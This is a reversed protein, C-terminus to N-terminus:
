FVQLRTQIMYTGNFRSEGDGCVPNPANSVSDLMPAILVEILFDHLKVFGLGLLAVTDALSGDGRVTISEFPVVLMVSVWIAALM